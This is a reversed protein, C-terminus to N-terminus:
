VCLNKTHFNTWLWFTVLFFVNTRFIRANLTSSISVQYQPDFYFRNIVFAAKTWLIEDGQAKWFQSVINVLSITTFNIFRTKANKQSEINEDSFHKLIPSNSFLQFEVIHILHKIPPFLHPHSQYKHSPFNTIETNLFYNQKTKNKPQFCQLHLFNCICNLTQIVTIILNIFYNLCSLFFSLFFFLFFSLFFNSNLPTWWWFFPSSFHSQNNQM